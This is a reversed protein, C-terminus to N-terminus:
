FLDLGHFNYTCIELSKLGESKTDASDLPRVMFFLRPDTRAVFGLRDRVSRRALQRMGCERQRRASDTERIFVLEELSSNLAKLISSEIKGCCTLWDRSCFSGRAPINHM